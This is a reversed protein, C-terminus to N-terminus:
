RRKSKKRTRAKLGFSTLTQLMQAPTQPQKPRFEKLVDELSPVELYSEKGRTKHARAWLRVTHWAQTAQAEMADRDRDKAAEFEWRLESLTM